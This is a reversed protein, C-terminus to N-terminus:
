SSKILAPQPIEWLEAADVLAKLVPGKTLLTNNKTM